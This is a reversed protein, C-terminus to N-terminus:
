KTLTLPVPNSVFDVLAPNRRFVVYSHYFRLGVLSSPIQPIAVFKARAQGTASIVGLSNPLLLSNPAVLTFLFYAKPLIM